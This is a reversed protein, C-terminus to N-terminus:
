RNHVSFRSSLLAVPVQEGMPVLINQGGRSQSRLGRINADNRLVEYLDKAVARVPAGYDTGGSSSGVFGFLSSKKVL